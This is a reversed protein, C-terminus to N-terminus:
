CAVTIGRRTSGEQRAVQFLGVDVARAEFGARCYALYYEWMRKFREDFGLREITPWATQFRNHWQELTRAYSAGFFETSILQLGVRAIERRILGSTPLIGGPFIYKQIFDPRRRYDAFRAEDITIVQLVAIGGPRLHERLTAFFRPWYAEGVAELMEISVIRDFTGSVDRYDQLRFTCAGRGVRERRRQQTFAFQETSLTLATVDCDFRETLRRALSGWGCGIELVREGGTMKMLDIVSDLKNRQAAELTHNAEDFLGASYTMSSDLWQAYFGNGLDYHAAINRRSGRRTNRNLAHRLKLLIAPPRLWRLPEASKNSFCALRLLGEVDQSSWDGAMYAEAFGIDWDTALRWLCRWSRISLRSSPGPRRGNFVLREGAPTDVILQGYALNRLLRRLVSELLLSAFPRRRSDIPRVSAQPHQISM